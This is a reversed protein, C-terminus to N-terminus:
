VDMVGVCIGEYLEGIIVNGVPYYHFTNKNIMAPLEIVWENKDFSNPLGWKMFTDIWDCVLRVRDINPISEFFEGFTDSREYYIQLEDLIDMPPAAIKLFNVFNVKSKTEPLNLLINVANKYKHHMDINTHRANFYHEFLTKGNFAISFSHLPIRLKENIEIYFTEKFNVESLIPINNHIYELLACIMAICYDYEILNLGYFRQIFSYRPLDNSNYTVLLEIGCTDDDTAFINITRGYKQSAYIHVNDSIQFIWTNIPEM